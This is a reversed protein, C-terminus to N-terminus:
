PKKYVGDIYVDMALIDSDDIGWGRIKIPVASNFVQGNEIELNTKPLTGTNAKTTISPVVLLLALVLITSKIIKRIKEM